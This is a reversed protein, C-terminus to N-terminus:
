TELISKGVPWNQYKCIHEEWCALTSLEFLIGAFQDTTGIEIYLVVDEVCNKSLVVRGCGTKQLFLLAKEQV